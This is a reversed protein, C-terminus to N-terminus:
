FYRRGVYPDHPLWQKYLEEDTKKPIEAINGSAPNQWEDGLIEKMIDLLNGGGSGGGGSGFSGNMMSNALGAGMGIKTLTGGLDALNPIGGLLTGGLTAIASLGGLLGGGSNSGVYKVAM